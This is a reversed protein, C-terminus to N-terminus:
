PQNSKRMQVPRSYTNQKSPEYSCKLNKIALFSILLGAIVEPQAKVLLRETDLVPIQVIGNAHAGQSGHCASDKTAFGAQQPRPWVPHDPRVSFGDM